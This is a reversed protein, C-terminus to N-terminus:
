SLLLGPYTHVVRIKLADPWTRVLIELNYFLCDMNLIYNITQKSHLASPQIESRMWCESLCLDQAIPARWPVVLARASLAKGSITGLM